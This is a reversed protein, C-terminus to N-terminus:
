QVTWSITTDYTELSPLVGEISKFFHRVLMARLSWHMDALSSQKLVRLFSLEVLPRKHISSLRSLILWEIQKILRSDISLQTDCWDWWASSKSDKLLISAM